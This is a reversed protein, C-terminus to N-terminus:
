ALAWSRVHSMPVALNDVNTGIVDTLHVRGLIDVGAVVGAVAPPYTPSLMLAVRAGIARALALADDRTMLLPSM